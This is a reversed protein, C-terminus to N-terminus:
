FIKGNKMDTVNNKKLTVFFNLVVFLNGEGENNATKFSTKTASIETPSTIM